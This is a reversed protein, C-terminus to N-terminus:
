LVVNKGTHIDQFVMYYGAEYPRDPDLPLWRGFGALESPMAGKSDRPIGYALYSLESDTYLLGLVYYNGNGEYDIRVFKSNPMISELESDAPYNKFLDEVEDRINDFFDGSTDNHPSDLIEDISDGDVEKDIINEIEVLDSEFFKADMLHEEAQPECKANDEPTLNNSLEVTPLNQEAIRALISAKYNGAVGSSAGWLLPQGNTTSLVCALPRDLSINEEMRFRYMEGALYIDCINYKDGSNIGLTFAKDNSKLNYPRITAFVGKTTSELMLTAMGRSQKDNDSLIITKKRM